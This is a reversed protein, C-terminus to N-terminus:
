KGEPAVDTRHECTVKLTGIENEYEVFLVKLHNLKYENRLLELEHTIDLMTQPYAFIKKIHVSIVNQKYETTM